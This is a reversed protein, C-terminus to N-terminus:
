KTDMSNLGRIHIYRYPLSREVMVVGGERKGLRYEWM